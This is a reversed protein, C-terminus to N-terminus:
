VGVVHLVQLDRYQMLGIFILPLRVRGLYPARAAVVPRGLPLLKSVEVGVREM